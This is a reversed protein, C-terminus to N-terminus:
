VGLKYFSGLDYIMLVGVGYVWGTFKTWDTFSFSFFFISIKLQQKVPMQGHIQSTLEFSNNYLTKKLSM